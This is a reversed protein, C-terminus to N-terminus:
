NTVRYSVTGALGDSNTVSLSYTGTPFGKPVLVVVETNSWSYIGLTTSGLKVNGSGRKTNFYKGKVTVVTNARTSGQTPSSILSGPNFAIRRVFNGADDPGGYQLLLLQGDPDTTLGPIQCLNANLANSNDAVNDCVGTGAVTTIAGTVTNYSKVYGQFCSFHVKGWQDPAIGRPGCGPSSVTTLSGTTSIRYILSCSAEGVYLTGASDFALKRIGGTGLTASTAATGTYTTCGSAYYQGAVRTIVGTVRDIRRVVRAKHDAFYVNGGEDLNVAEPRDMLADIALGGDGAAPCDPLQGGGADQCLTSDLQVPLGQADVRGAIRTVSGDLGVRSIGALNLVILSGDVDVAFDDLHPELNPSLYREVAWPDIGIVQDFEAGYQNFFVGGLGNTRVGYSSVPTVGDALYPGYLTKINAAQAIGSLLFVAVSVILVVTRNIKM